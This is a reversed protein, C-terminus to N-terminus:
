SGKCYEHKNTLVQPFCVCSFFCVFLYVFCVFWAGCFVCVCVCVCSGFFFVLFLFFPTTFSVAFFFFSVMPNRGVAFLDFVNVFSYSSLSYCILNKCARKIVITQNTKIIKAKFCCGQMTRDLEELIEYKGCNGKKTLFFFMEFVLHVNCLRM